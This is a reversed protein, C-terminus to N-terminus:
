ILSVLCELIVKRDSSYSLFEFSMERDSSDLIFMYQVVYTNKTDSRENKEPPNGLRNETTQRRSDDHSHIPTAPSSLVVRHKSPLAVKSQLGSRTRTCQVTRSGGCADSFTMVDCARWDDNSHKNRTHARGRTHLSVFLSSFCLHSCPSAQRPMRYRSLAPPVDSTLSTTRERTENDQKTKNKNKKAGRARAPTTLPTKKIM